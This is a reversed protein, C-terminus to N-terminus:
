YPQLRAQRVRGPEHAAGERWHLPRPLPADQDQHHRGSRLGDDQGRGAVVFEQRLGVLRVPELNSRSKADPLGRVTHTRSVAEVFPRMREWQRRYLAFAWNHHMALLGSINKVQEALPLTYDGYAAVYGVRADDAHAELLREMTAIYHPSLVMDDELFIASPAALEEFVFREAREFNLAVGLNHPSAMVTGHPVRRVFAEVSEEILEQKGHARNSFPNRLGDQFLYVPRSDIGCGAQAMLSDLVQVLYEPRNFSMVVIPVPQSAM